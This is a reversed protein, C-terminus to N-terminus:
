ILGKTPVAKCKAIQYAGTLIIQKIQEEESLGWETIKCQDSDPVVQSTWPCSGSVHSHLFPTLMHKVATGLSLTIIFSHYTDM